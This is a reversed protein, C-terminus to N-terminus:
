LFFRISSIFIKEKIAKFVHFFEFLYGSLWIGKKHYAKGVAVFGKFAGGAPEGRLANVICLARNAALAEYSFGDMRERVFIHDGEKNRGDVIDAFFYKIDDM